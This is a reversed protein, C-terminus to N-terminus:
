WRVGRNGTCNAEAALSVEAGGQSSGLGDGAFRYGGLCM